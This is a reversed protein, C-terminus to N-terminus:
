CWRGPSRRGVSRGCRTRWRRGWDRRRGRRLSSPCIRPSRWRNRTRPALPVPRPGVRSSRSCNRGPTLDFCSCAPATGAAFRDASLGIAPPAVADARTRDPDGGDAGDPAAPLRMSQSVDVLVAVRSPRVATTQTRERPDFAIVGLCVIVGIRLALLGVRLARPLARTDRIYLWVTWALLLGGVGLLLGWGLPSRPPNWETATLSEVSPDAAVGAAASAAQALPPLVQSLPAAFPM